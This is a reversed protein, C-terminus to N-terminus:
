EGNTTRREKLADPFNFGLFEAADIPSQPEPPPDHFCRIQVASGPSVVPLKFGSYGVSGSRTRGKESVVVTIPERERVLEMARMPHISVISCMGDDNLAGGFFATDCRNRTWQRTETPVFDAPPGTRGYYGPIQTLDTGM